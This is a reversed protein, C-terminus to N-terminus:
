DQGYGRKGHGKSQRNHKLEYYQNAASTAYPQTKEPQQLILVRGVAGSAPEQHAVAESDSTEASYAFGLHM